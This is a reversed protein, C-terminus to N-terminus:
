FIVSHKGTVGGRTIVPGIEIEFHKLSPGMVRPLIEQLAEHPVDPNPCLEGIRLSDVHIDVNLGQLWRYMHSSLSLIPTLKLRRLHLIRCEAPPPLPSLRLFPSGTINDISLNCLNTFGCIFLYMDDADHFFVERLLLTTLTASITQPIWDGEPFLQAFIELAELNPFRGLSNLVRQASKSPVGHIEIRRVHHAINPSDHIDEILRRWIPPTSRGHEGRFHLLSWLHSYARVTWLRCVM